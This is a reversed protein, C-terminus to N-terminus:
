KRSSNLKSIFEDIDRKAQVADRNLAVDQPNKRAMELAKQYESVLSDYQNRTKIKERMPMSGSAASIRDM